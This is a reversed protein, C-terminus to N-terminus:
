TFIFDGTTLQGTTVGNLTVTFFGNYTIVANGNITTSHSQVDAFSHLDTGVFRIRDQSGGAFDLILDAGDGPAFIFVDDNGGGILVDNGASGNLSTTVIVGYISKSKNALEQVHHHWAVFGRWLGLLWHIEPIPCPTVVISESYL